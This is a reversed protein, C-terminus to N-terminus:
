FVAGLIEVMLALGGLVAGPIWPRVTVHHGAVKRVQPRASFYDRTFAHGVECSLGQSGNESM